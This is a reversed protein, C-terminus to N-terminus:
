LDSSSRITQLDVVNGYRINWEGQMAGSDNESGVIMSMMKEVADSWRNGGGHGSLWGVVVGSMMMTKMKLGIGYFGGFDCDFARNECMEECYIASDFCFYFM